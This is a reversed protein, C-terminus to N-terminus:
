AKVELPEVLIKIYKKPLGFLRIITVIDVRLHHALVPAKYPDLVPPRANKYPKRGHIIHNFYAPSYSLQRALFRQRIGRAAILELIEKTHTERRMKKKVKEGRQAIINDNTTLM